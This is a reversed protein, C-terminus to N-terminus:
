FEPFFIPSPLKFFSVVICTIWDIAQNLSTSSKRNRKLKADIERFDDRERLGECRALHM